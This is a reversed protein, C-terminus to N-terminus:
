RVRISSYLKDLADLENDQELEKDRFKGIQVGIDQLTDAIGTVGAGYATNGLLSASGTIDIAQFTFVLPHTRRYNNTSNLQNFVAQISVKYYQGPKVGIVRIMCPGTPATDQNVCVSPNGTEVKALPGKGAHSKLEEETLERTGDKNLEYVDAHLKWPIYDLIGDLIPQMTASDLDGSLKTIHRQVLQHFVRIDPIRVNFICQDYPIMEVQGLTVEGGPYIAVDNDTKLMVALGMNGDLPGGHTTDTTQNVTDTEVGLVRFHQGGVKIPYKLGDGSLKHGDVQVHIRYTTNPELYQTLEFTRQPPTTTDNNAVPQWKSITWRVDPTQARIDHFTVLVNNLIEDANNIALRLRLKTDLNNYHVLDGNKLSTPYERGPFLTDMALIDSVTPNEKGGNNESTSKTVFSEQNQHYM